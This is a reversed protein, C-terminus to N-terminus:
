NVESSYLTTLISFVYAQIIAVATEFLMLSIQVTMLMMIVITSANTTNNGLLSMLLHGAIMNATLRVALSGPRIINSITEICVMFPMLIGPTGAPILHSFMHQTKKIWGFLMISLWLPLSMALSCVLHSTSTFIYPLLGLMNNVLIFMFISTMMLTLGNSKNLLTKFELHLTTYIIQIMKTYRSKMMWYSYPFMIFIIMTSLWNMSYNMSTSPDFTSFLNTMM